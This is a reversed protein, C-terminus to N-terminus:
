CSSKILKAIEGPASFVIAARDGGMGVGVLVPRSPHPGFETSDTKLRLNFEWLKHTKGAETTVFYTDGCYRIAKVVDDAQASKLRPMRPGAAPGRPAESGESVAKLYAILDRRAGPDPIGRFSMSNEPILQAPSVLWQDLTRENWVIGSKLMADSYRLFGKHTGAKRGFLQALSPGTMHRDPELSHCAVCAQFAKAGRKVDGAPEAGDAPLVAALVGAAIGLAALHRPARRVAAATCAKRHAADARLSDRSDADM